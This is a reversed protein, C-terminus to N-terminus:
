VVIDFATEFLEKGERDLNFHNRYFDHVSDNKFRNWRHIANPDDCEDLITMNPYRNRLCRKHKELAKKQCRIVYFQHKEDAKKDIFCLVNDIEERRPVHRNAILDTIEERRREIEENKARIEGQLGVNKYKLQRVHNQSEALDDNLLTLQTDKEEIEAALKRM